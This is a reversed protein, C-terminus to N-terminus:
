SFICLTIHNDIHMIYSYRKPPFFHSRYKEDKNNWAIFFVYKHHSTTEKSSHGLRWQTRHTAYLCGDHSKPHSSAASQPMLIVLLPPFFDRAIHAIADRYLCSGWPHAILIKSFVSWPSSPRYEGFYEYSVWSHCSLHSNLTWMQM